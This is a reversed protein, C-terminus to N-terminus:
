PNGPSVGGPQFPLVFDVAFGGGARPGASFAFDDGYLTALRQRTNALGIGEGATGVTAVPADDRVALRLKEDELTAEITITVAADSEDLGHRVANEVLPQLLLVPVSAALAQPAVRHEVRLRPGFRARQIELYRELLELEEALPVVHRDSARLAHRLLESLDLLMDEARGPDSRVFEVITNLTNFLFHPHLQRTLGTLRAEALQRELETTRRLREQNHRTARWGQMATLVLAYCLWHFPMRTLAMRWLNPPRPGREPPPAGRWVPDGEQPPPRFEELRPPPRGGGPMPEIGTTRLLGFAALPLLFAVVLGVVAHLAAHRWRAADEFPFRNALWLVGPLAAFWPLTDTSALRFATALDFRGSLWLQLIMLSLILPGFVLVWRLWHPPMRRLDDPPHTTPM